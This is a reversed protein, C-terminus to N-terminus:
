HITEGEPRRTALLEGVAFMVRKWWDHGSIDGDVLRENAEMAVYSCAMSGYEAILDAAAEYLAHEAAIGEVPQTM